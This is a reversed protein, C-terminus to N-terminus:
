QGGSRRFVPEIRRLEEMPIHCAIRHGEAPEVAPPREQDCIPGVKRPCRTAFPCGEPPDLASPLPGELVIERKTVDPDAIPVAALLAETCPHYPPAFIQETSGSELIRGLYMVVIRDALHRVVALDHSIFVLTTRKERQIALLREIVAAAVSVDLASIPEDAVILAPDGAFARAVGVRQKQGVSLRSPLSGACDRPLRVMDLLALMRERVVARSGGAGSKRIARAIQFGVTHGPNLTGDPDQFVMQLSRVVEPARRGVPVQGIATGRFRITGGSAAELGMLVKAFTSKGCGSEGVLAVVEGRRAMFTLDENAKVYKVGVGSLLARLPRDRVPYYKRLDQVELVPEGIEAPPASAPRRAPGAHAIEAHRICRVAGGESGAITELPIPGADCRGASFHPCRPAFTCGPPREHPLPPQGPIPALPATNRDADPRPTCAFLARTYPHRPRGFVAGVAGAEVIEGAYMVAVRDCTECVLGLNHSIYFVATGYKAALGGILRTIGAQVTVDLATTPEDLLIVGPDALLAMAIVVRQQQGGSIQHPYAAMLREPDSLQIEALMAAARARAGAESLGAHHIPVEALQRGVTLSPNLAAMPEQYVMAIESGRIRRLAKESRGILEEDRYRISGSVIRGNRGLYQMVAMALTSKGCGSEGVLGVTEGARLDLSVDVVAPVVGARTLYSVSLNEVALLPPEARDAM